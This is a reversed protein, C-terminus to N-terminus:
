PSGAGRGWRPPPPQSNPNDRGPRRRFSLVFLIFGVAMLSFGAPQVYAELPLPGGSLKLDVSLVKVNDADGPGVTFTHISDDVATLAGARIRYIKELTQPSDDIIEAGTLDLINALLTRGDSAVTITLVSEGPRPESTVVAAVDLLISVPANASAFTADAPRYGGSEDYVRWTGLNTQSYRELAWPYVMGLAIGALFVLLYLARMM